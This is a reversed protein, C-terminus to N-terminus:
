FPNVTYGDQQLLAHATMASLALEVGTYFDDKKVGYAAASQGCIIIRVGKERLADILAVNPNPM